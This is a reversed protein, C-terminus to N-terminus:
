SPCSSIRENKIGKQRFVDGKQDIKVRIQHFKVPVKPCVGSHIVGLLPSGPVPCRPVGTRPSFHMTWFTSHAVILAARLCAPVVPSFRPFQWFPLLRGVAPFRSEPIPFRSRALGRPVQFKGAPLRAQFKSSDNKSSEVSGAAYSPTMTPRGPRRRLLSSCYYQAGPIASGCWHNPPGKHMCSLFFRSRDLFIVYRVTSRQSTPYGSPRPSGSIPNLLFPPV